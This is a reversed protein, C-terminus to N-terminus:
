RTERQVWEKVIDTVLSNVDRGLRRAERRLPEYEDETLVALVRYERSRKVRSDALRAAAQGVTIEPHRILDEVLYRSEIATFNRMVSAVVEVVEPRVKMLQRLRRGNELGLKRSNFLPRLAHPLSLLGIFESIMEASINLAEGLKANTNSDPHQKLRALAEATALLDKHKSGKLNAFALAIDSDRDPM